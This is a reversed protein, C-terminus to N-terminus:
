AVRPHQRGLSHKLDRSTAIRRCLLGGLTDSAGEGLQGDAVDLLVGLAAVPGPPLGLSQDADV